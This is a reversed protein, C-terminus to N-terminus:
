ERSTLKEIIFNLKLKELDGDIKEAIYRCIENSLGTEEELEKGIASACLQRAICMDVFADLRSALAAYENESIPSQAEVNLYPDYRLVYSNWILDICFKAKYSDKNELNKLVKFANFTQMKRKIYIGAFEKCKYDEFLSLVEEISIDNSNADNIIVKLLETFKELSEKKIDNDDLQVEESLIELVDSDWNPIENTLDRIYSQFRSLM